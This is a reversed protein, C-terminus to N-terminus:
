FCKPKIIAVHQLLEVPLDLPLILGVRLRLFNLLYNLVHVYGEVQLKSLELILKRFKGHILPNPTPFDPIFLNLSTSSSYAIQWVGGHM